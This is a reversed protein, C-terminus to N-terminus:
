PAPNEFHEITEGAAIKQLLVPLEAHKDPPVSFSIHRGLAQAASYGYIQEAARNWSTVTGDLETGIIADDSHQVIAALKLLEQESIRKRQRIIFSFCFGACGAFFITLIRSTALSMRPFCLQKTIEYVATACLAV